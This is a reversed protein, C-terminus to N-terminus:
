IRISEKDQPIREMFWETAKKELYNQISDPEQIKLAQAFITKSIEMSKLANFMEMQELPDKTKILKIIESIVPSFSPSKGLKLIKIIEFSFKLFQIQTFSNFSPLLKSLQVWIEKLTDADRYFIILDKVGSMFNRKNHEFQSSLIEEITIKIIGPNSVLKILHKIFLNKEVPNAIKNLSNALKLYIQKKLPIEYERLSTSNKLKNILKILMEDLMSPIQDSLTLLVQPLGLYAYDDNRLAFIKALFWDQIESDATNLANIIQPLLKTLLEYNEKSFATFHGIGMGKADFLEEIFAKQVERAVKPFFNVYSSKLIDLIDEQLKKEHHWLSFIEKVSKIQEKKNYINSLEFSELIKKKEGTLILTKIVEGNLHTGPSSYIVINAIDKFYRNGSLILQKILNNDTKAKEELLSFVETNFSASLIDYNPDYKKPSTTFYNNSKIYESVSRDMKPLDAWVEALLSKALEAGSETTRLDFTEYVFTEQVSPEMEPIFEKIKHLLKSLLDSAEKLNKLEFIKEIVRAQSYANLPILYEKIDIGKFFEFAMEPEVYRQWIISYNQQTEDKLSSLHTMFETAKKAWTKSNSISLNCILEAM